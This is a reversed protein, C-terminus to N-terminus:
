KFKIITHTRSEDESKIVVYYYDDEKAFLLKIKENYVIQNKYLIEIETIDINSLEEPLIEYIFDLYYTNHVHNNMDIMSHNVIFDKSLIYNSPERVKYNKEDDFVTKEEKGYKDYIEDTLKMISGNRVDIPIWKSSAIAVIDGNEDKAEYDRFAYLKNRDSSWTTVSLNQSYNLRKLVKMKISIIFWTLNTESINTLGYGIKNSHIGATDEFYGLLAKNTLKYKNDVDRFGIYYDKNIFM